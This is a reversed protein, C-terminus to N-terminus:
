DGAFSLEEILYVTKLKKRVEFDPENLILTFAYNSNGEVEFNTRFCDIILDASALIQESCKSKFIPLIEEFELIQDSM